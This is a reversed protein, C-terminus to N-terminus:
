STIDKTTKRILFCESRRHYQRVGALHRSPSQSDLVHDCRADRLM